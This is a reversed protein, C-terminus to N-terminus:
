FGILSWVSGKLKCSVGGSAKLVETGGQISVVHQDKDLKHAAFQPSDQLDRILLMINGVDWQAKQGPLAKGGADSKM